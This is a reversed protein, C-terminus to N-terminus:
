SNMCIIHELQRSGILICGCSAFFNMGAEHPDSTDMRQSLKMCSALVKSVIIEVLDKSPLAEIMVLLTDLM